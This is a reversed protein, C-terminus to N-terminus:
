ENSIPCRRIRCGAIDLKGEFMDGMDDSGGDVKLFILCSLLEEFWHDRRLPDAEAELLTPQCIWPRVVGIWSHDERPENEPSSAKRISGPIGHGGSDESHSAEVGAAQRSCDRM